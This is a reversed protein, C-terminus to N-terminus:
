RGVSGAAYAPITLRKHLNANIWGFSKGNAGSAPAAADLVTVDAGGKALHLTISAGNFGAGVVIVKQIM